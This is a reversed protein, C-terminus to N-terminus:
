FDLRDIQAFLLYGAIGAAVIVGISGIRYQPNKRNLIISAIIGAIVAVLIYIM